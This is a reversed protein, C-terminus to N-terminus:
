ECLKKLLDLSKDYEVRLADSFTMGFWGYFPGSPLAGVSSWTVKTGGNPLAELTIESDMDPFKGFSSTFAVKQNKVSETIWLKGKGRLETWEQVAGEGEESGSFELTLDAIRNPSWMTWKNWRRIRNVESFVKEVPADIEISTAVDFDRSIMTGILLVIGIFASVALFIRLLLNAM